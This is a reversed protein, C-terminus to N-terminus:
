LVALLRMDRADWCIAFTNRALSLRLFVGVRAGLSKDRHFCSSAPGVLRGFIIQLGPGFTGGTTSGTLCDIYLFSRKWLHIIFTPMVADCLLFLTLRTLRATTRAPLVVDVCFEMDQM